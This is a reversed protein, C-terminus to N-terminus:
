RRSFLAARKHEWYRVQDVSAVAVAVAVAGSRVQSVSM